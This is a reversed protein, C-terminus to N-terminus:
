TYRIGQHEPLYFQPLLWDVQLLGERTLRICQGDSEALHQKILPEFQAAFHRLLDVGFKKAFYSCDLSGTKLLLIVERRLKEEATLSLARKLPLKDKALLGVYSDFTDANQYHTGQLHGFSSEGLALLDEGHWFHEVTYVFRWRSPDRIAMYGSGIVYGAGEFTEFAEGVLRRKSPWSPLRLARGAQMSRYNASNWTLECQYITVCDPALQLVQEITRRWTKETEGPLGAILDINIENFGAARAMRYADLCSAATGNRGAHRLITDDLSQFGLSLRTVGLQKLARLKEPTVTGPECEFTCEDVSDWSSREQLGGLLQQIQATSLYSPTGGGFYVSRFLRNAFGPTKLYLSLEKLVSEIYLDIDAPARHPYVRFYCYHCRQRCFPLHVYLSLPGNPTRGKASVAREGDSPSLTARVNELKPDM